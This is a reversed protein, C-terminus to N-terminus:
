LSTNSNAYGWTSIESLVQDQGLDLTIVPVGWSDIYDCPFGCADTVWTSGLRDHPPNGDFGVGAGEILNEQAFFNGGQPLQVSVSSIPYFDAASALPPLVMLGIFVSTCLAITKKM